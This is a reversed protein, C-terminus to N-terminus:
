GEVIRVPVKYLKQGTKLESKVKKYNLRFKIFNEVIENEADVFLVVFEKNKNLTFIVYAEEQKDVEFYPQKLLEQIEKVLDDPTSKPDTNANVITTMIFAIALLLVNLKKM